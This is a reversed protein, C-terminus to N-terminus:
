VEFVFEPKEAKNLMWQYLMYMKGAIVKTSYLNDIMDKGNQGMKLREKESIKLALELTDAIIEISNEIWWGCKYRILNEWPTGKSAIVPVGYSLAEPVVMGFNESKSPLVLYTLQQILAQLEYGEKFGTFIVNKLRYKKVLSELQIRYQLEGDGILYLEVDPYKNEIKAWAKILVDINKIPHFRGVFGIRKKNIVFDNPFRNEMTWVDVDLANPIIAIPMKLGLKRIHIMEAYSTAHLCKAKELDTWQFLFFTMKKLFSKVDLAHPYLMGHPSILYPINLNRAKKASAYATYQWLGNIHILDVNEFQSLKNYFHRSYAFKHEKPMPVIHMFEDNGILHDNIPDIVDYTLLDIKVNQLIYLSKVLNYTCTTPGGLSIGMGSITHLVEM